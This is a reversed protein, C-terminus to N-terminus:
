RWANIDSVSQNNMHSVREPQCSGSYVNLHEYLYLSISARLIQINLANRKCCIEEARIIDQESFSPNIRPPEDISM